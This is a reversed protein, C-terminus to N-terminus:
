QAPNPVLVQVLVRVDGFVRVLVPVGDQVQV